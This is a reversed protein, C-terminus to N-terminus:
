YIKKGEDMTYDIASDQSLTGTEMESYSSVNNDDSVPTFDSVFLYSPHFKIWVRKNM